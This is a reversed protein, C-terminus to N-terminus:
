IRNSNMFRQNGSEPVSQGNIIKNPTIMWGDEKRLFSLDQSQFKDGVPLNLIKSFASEPLSKRIEAQSITLVDNM